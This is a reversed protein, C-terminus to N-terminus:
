IREAFEGGVSMAANIPAADVPRASSRIHESLSEVCDLKSLDVQVPDVRAGAVRIQWWLMFGPKKRQL